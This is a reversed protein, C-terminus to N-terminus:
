QGTSTLAMPRAPQGESIVHVGAVAYQEGPALGTVLV